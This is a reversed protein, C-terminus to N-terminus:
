GECRDCTLIERNFQQAANISFQYYLSKLGMREAELHLHNIEKVPTDPHIMINLSQGQDIYKQRFSAKEILKLQDIEGFTKFVNKEHNSLFDLGQVSGGNLLIADWVEKTNKGKKKLLEILFPNKYTVKIKALDKIYYNSKLPEISPSVCGLIFSSSKTPAVSMLTTNRRGYGKLLEPEGYKKALLKSAREARQKIRKFMSVEKKTSEDDDFSINESQLYSHLGLTGVGIARHNKAFRHAKELFKVDKSKDIFESIVSDLFYVLTEVAETDKWEDYYLLNMSSLCCIFSEEKSSPLMIETCLNSCHIKMKKDKYVDATNENANDKFFIYPVGTNIRKELIKAWIHKKAKDGNKMQNLWERGVCIGYYMMQIPNGETRINLWEMLDPHEIDIYGAFQGERSNGQSIVDITNNFLKAFNFSGDTYGNNTIKSGRPRIDNFYASTGGGVKTMMGVEANTSLIDLITDGIYSGFCSIPFGKKLGYNSWIPTSLSYCGKSMYYYFNDSFGKIGLIEEARDSIERVRTIPDTGKILVGRKLFLKSEETLWTFGERNKLYDM